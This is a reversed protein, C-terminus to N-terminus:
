ARWQTGCQLCNVLVTIPEDCRELQVCYHSTRTGGCKECAGFQGDVAEIGNEKELKAINDRLFSSSTSDLDNQVAKAREAKKEDSAMERSTMLTLTKAKLEGSLVAERLKQLLLSFKILDFYYLLRGNNLICVNNKSLNFALDRCKLLYAKNDKASSCMDNVASEIALALANAVLRNMSSNSDVFVAKLKDYMKRRSEPLMELYNDDDESSERALSTKQKSQDATEHPTKHPASAPPNSTSAQKSPSSLLGSTTQPQKSIKKWKV